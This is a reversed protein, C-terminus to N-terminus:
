DRVDLESVTVDEFVAEITEDESHSCVALGVVLPDAMSVTRQDLAQWEEGDTSWSLTVEDGVADIRYWQYAGYPEEMQDSGAYEGTRERWMTETGFSETAGVFAFAADEDLGDRVMLGAKSYEHTGEHDVLRGEIRVPASADGYVFHFEDIDQWIDRGNGTVTWSDDVSNYRSEGPVTVDGVDTSESLDVSAAPTASRPVVVPCGGIEFRAGGAASETVTLTWDQQGVTETVIALGTGSGDDSTTYGDELVNEREDEPIGPGDDEVFFGREVVGVRVTVGPGGHDVANKLLNEILPRLTETEAIVETGEPVDVELTAEETENVRWINEVLPVLETADVGVDLAELVEESLRQDSRDGKSLASLDQIIEEIRENAREIRDFADEDGERARDLAGVSIQLPTRLDHSVYSAFQDFRDRQEELKREAHIRQSVENTYGVVGQVEGDDDYWPVKTVQSWHDGGQGEFHEIKDRITEETEVVRLDDEYADTAAEPDHEFVEPDTKGQAEEPDITYPVDAMRLYRGAEDKAFVTLEGEMLLTEFISSDAATQRRRQFTDLADDVVTALTEMSASRPLYRCDAHEAVAAAAEDAYAVVPLLDDAARVAERIDRFTREDVDVAVVCGVDTRESLTSRVDDVDEADEADVADTAAADTVASRVRDRDASSGGVVLAVSPDALLYSM